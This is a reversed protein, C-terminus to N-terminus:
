EEFLHCRGTIRSVQGAFCDPTVRQRSNDQELEDYKPHAPNLPSPLIFAKVDAAELASTFSLRRDDYSVGALVDNGGVALIAPGKTIPFREDGLMRTPIAHDVLRIQTIWCFRNIFETVSTWDPGYDAKRSDGEFYLTKM